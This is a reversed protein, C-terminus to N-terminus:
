IKFTDVRIPYLQQKIGQSSFITKFITLNQNLVNTKMM